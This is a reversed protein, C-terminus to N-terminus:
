KFNPHLWFWITQAVAAAAFVVPLSIALSWWEHAYVKVPVFFLTECWFAAHYSLCLPCSLLEGLLGGRAQYYSRRYEFISGMFWARLMALVVLGILLAELTSSIVLGTILSM